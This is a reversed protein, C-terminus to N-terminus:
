VKFEGKVILRIRFRSYGQVHETPVSVTFNTGPITCITVSSGLNLRCQSVQLEVGCGTTPFYEKCEKEEFLSPCQVGGFAPHTLISRTRNQKGGFCKTFESFPGVKCDVPPDCNRVEHLPPCAPTNVPHTTVNRSRTQTKKVPDCVSWDGFDSVVCDSCDRTEHLSGCSTGGNSPHTIVSRTRYQKGGVCTVSWESWPSLVCHVPPPVCTQVPVKWECEKYEFHSAGCYSTSSWKGSPSCTASGVSAHGCGQTSGDKVHFIATSGAEYDQCIHHNQGWHSVVSSKPSLACAYDFLNLPSCHEMCVKRMM